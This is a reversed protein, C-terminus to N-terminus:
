QCGGLADCIPQITDVVGQLAEITKTVGEADEASGLEPLKIADVGAIAMFPGMLELVSGIPGFGNMLHQMSNASNEQACKITAALDANGSDEAAKLQLTLGGMVEALTKFQGILCRLLALVLCLIDRVFPIMAAPTISLFCPALDAVAEGFEKIAKVPPVPLNNVIDSLPKVLKLIKIVCEMSALLPAIQLMLSFSLSCDTPVAKGLDHIAQISGGSPLTIKQKIPPPFSLDICKPAAMLKALEDPVPVDINPM